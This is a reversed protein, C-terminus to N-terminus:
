VNLPCIIHSVKRAQVRLSHWLNFAFNLTMMSSKLSFRPWRTTMQLSCTEQSVVTTFATRIKVLFQNLAPKTSIQKSLGRRLMIIKSTPSGRRCLNVTKTMSPLKIKMKTRSALTMIWCSGSRRPCWDIIRHGITTRGRWIRGWMMQKPTEKTGQQVKLLTQAGSSNRSQLQAQTALQLLSLFNM